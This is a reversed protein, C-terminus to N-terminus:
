YYLTIAYHNLNESRYSRNFSCMSFHELIKDPINTDPNTDIVILEYQNDKLYLNDNAPATDINSKHYIVCPYRILSAEPPQYYVNNTGLLIKLEEHLSLRSAM